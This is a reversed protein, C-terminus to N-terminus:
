KQWYKKNVERGKPIRPPCGTLLNKVEVKINTSIVLTTFTPKGVIECTYKNNLNKILSKQGHEM